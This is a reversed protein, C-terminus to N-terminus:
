SSTAPKADEPGVPFGFRTGLMFLRLYSSWGLMSSHPLGSQCLASCYPVLERRSGFCCAACSSDHSSACQPERNDLCSFFEGLPWEAGRIVGRYCELLTLPSHSPSPTVWPEAAAEDSGRIVWRLESSPQKQIGPEETMMLWPSLWARQKGICTGHTMMHM